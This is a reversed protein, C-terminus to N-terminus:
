VRGAEVTVVVQGATAGALAVLDMAFSSARAQPAPDVEVLLTVTTTRARRRSSGMVVTASPGLHATAVENVLMIVAAAGVEWSSSTSGRGMPM